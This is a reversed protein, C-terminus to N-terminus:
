SRVKFENAVGPYKVHFIIKEGDLNYSGCPGRRKKYEVPYIVYGCVNYGCPLHPHMPMLYYCGTEWAHTDVCSM